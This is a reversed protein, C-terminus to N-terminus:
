KEIHEEFVKLDAKDVAIPMLAKRRKIGSM